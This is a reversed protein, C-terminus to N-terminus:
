VIQEQLSITHTSVIVPLARDLAYHIAPVLYAFTKGVGTPAEVCLHLGQDLHEAVADAM